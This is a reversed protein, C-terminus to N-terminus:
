APIAGRKFHTVTANAFDCLCTCAIDMGAPVAMKGMRKMKGTGDCHPCDADAPKRAPTICTGVMDDPHRLSKIGEPEYIYDDPM